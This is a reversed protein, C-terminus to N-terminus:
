SRTRRACSTCRREYDAATHRAATALDGDAKNVVVLDALEM